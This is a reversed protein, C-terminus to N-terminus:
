SHHGTLATISKGNSLIDLHLVNTSRVVTAKQVPLSGPLTRLEAYKPLAGVVRKKKFCARM